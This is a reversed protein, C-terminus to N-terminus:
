RSGQVAELDVLGGAKLKWPDDNAARKHKESEGKEDAAAKSLREVTIGPKRKKLSAALKADQLLAATDDRASRFMLVSQEVTTTQLGSSKSQLHWYSM